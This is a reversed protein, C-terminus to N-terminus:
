EHERAEGDCDGQGNCGIPGYRGGGRHVRSDDNAATDDPINSVDGGGTGTDEFDLEASLSLEGSSSISFRDNDNADAGTDVAAALSYLLDDNDDDTAAIEGIVGDVNESVEIDDITGFDPAANSM